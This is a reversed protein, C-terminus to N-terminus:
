LRGATGSSRFGVPLLAGPESTGAAKRRSGIMLLGLGFPCPPESGDMAMLGDFGFSMTM